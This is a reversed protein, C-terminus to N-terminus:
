KAQRAIWKELGKYFEAQLSGQSRSVAAEQWKLARSGPHKIVAKRVFGRDQDIGFHFMKAKKLKIDHPDTGKETFWGIYGVSKGRYKKNPGVLLALEENESKVVRDGAGTRVRRGPKAITKNISQALRSGPTENDNPALSKMALILPKAAVHLASRVGKQQLDRSLGHLTDLSQQQGALKVDVLTDSSTVGGIDSREAM